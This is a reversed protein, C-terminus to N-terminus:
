TLKTDAQCFSRQSFPLLTPVEATLRIMLKGISTEEKMFYLFHFLAIYYRRLRKTIIDSINNHRYACRTLEQTKEFMLVYM